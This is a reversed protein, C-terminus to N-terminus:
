NFYKVKGSIITKKPEQLVYDPRDYKFDEPSYEINVTMGNDVLEILIDRISSVIYDDDKDFSEFLKIYKM